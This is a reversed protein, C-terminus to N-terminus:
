LNTVMRIPCYGQRSRGSTSTMEDEFFYQSLSRTIQQYVGPAALPSSPVSSVAPDLYEYQGKRSNYRLDFRSFLDLFIVDSTVSQSGTL